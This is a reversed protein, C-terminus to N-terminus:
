LSKTRNTPINFLYLKGISTDFPTGKRDFNFPYPTPDCPPAERILARKKPIIRILTLSRLVSPDHCTFYVPPSLTSKYLKKSTRQDSHDRIVLGSGSKFHQQTDGEGEGPNATKTHCIDHFLDHLM